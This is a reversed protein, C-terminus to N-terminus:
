PKKTSIKQSICKKLIDNIKNINIYPCEICSNCIDNNSLAFAKNTNFQYNAILSLILLKGFWEKINNNKLNINKTESETFSVIMLDVINNCNIIHYGSESRQMNYFDNLFTTWKEEFIVSYIISM